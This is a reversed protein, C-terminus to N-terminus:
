TKAPLMPPSIAVAHMECARGHQSIDKYASTAAIAGQAAGTVIQKFSGSADTLDGCAFVGDVNTAMTIPDVHVEGRPNLIVGLEKALANRPTAGVEIFVANVPLVDLDSDGTPTTRHGDSRGIPPSTVGGRRELRVAELPPGGVYERVETGYFVDMKGASVREMLRDRNIPEARDVNDERVILSVHAAGMDALQNASKVASDGGGVVAVPKGRYVPGDCTACYHVGKAKYENERPLNLSRHEMGTALILTKAQLLLTGHESSQVRGESSQVQFCHYENKVITAEGEIIETGLEDVAQAKMKEMLEYGDIKPTGPYNEIVGATATYGGFMKAVIGVSLNYRRAYIAAAYAAAGSGIILVDYARM